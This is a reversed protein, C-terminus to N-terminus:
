SVWAAGTVPAGGLAGPGRCEGAGLCWRCGRCAGAGVGLARDPPGAQYPSPRGYVQRPRPPSAAGGLKERSPRGLPGRTLGTWGISCVWGFGPVAGRSFGASVCREWVVFGVRGPPWPETLTTNPCTLIAARVRSRPGRRHPNHHHECDRHRTALSRRRSGPRSRIAPLSASRERCTRRTPGCVGSEVSRSRLVGNQNTFGCTPSHRKRARPTAGAAVAAQPTRSATKGVRLVRGM